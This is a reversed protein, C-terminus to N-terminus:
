TGAARPNPTFATTADLWERIWQATWERRLNKVEPIADMRQHLPREWAPAAVMWSATYFKMADALTPASFGITREDLRRAQPMMMAADAMEKSRFHVGVEIPTAVVFPRCDRLRDLALAAGHEIASTAEDRSMSSALTTRDRARKVSTKVTWPLFYDAERMTADDGTVHIAPVGAAGFPAATVTMEGVAEGGFSLATFPRITHSLFGDQTGAMAHYGLLVVAHAWSALPSAPGRLVEPTGELEHSDFARYIGWGHQEVVKIETAGSQKLGRICANIDTILHQRGIEFADPYDRLVQHVHDIGAAGEMDTAIVVRVSL